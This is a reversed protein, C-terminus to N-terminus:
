TDAAKALESQTSWRRARAIRSELLQLGAQRLKASQFQRELRQLAGAAKATKSTGKIPDLRRRAAPALDLGMDALLEHMFCLVFHADRPLTNWEAVFGQLVEAVFWAHLASLRAVEALSDTVRNLKLWGGPLLKSLVGSMQRADARGDSIAEILVDLATTRADADKGALGTWVTLAAMESWPRDSELLPTLYAYNPELTIAPEDMRRACECAALALFPDLCLPWTQALIWIRCPVVLLTRVMETRTIMTGHPGKITSQVPQKGWNARDHLAVTPWMALSGSFAALPENRIEIASGQRPYWPWGDESSM